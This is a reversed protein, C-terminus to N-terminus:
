RGKPIEGQFAILKKVTHVIMELGFLILGIWVFMHPIWMPTATAEISLIHLQVSKMFFDWAFRFYIGILALFVLGNVVELGDGARKGLRKVVLDVNIHAGRRMAYALGLFVVVVMLYASYEEIGLLPKNLLYRMIVNTSIMIMMIVISVAGMGIGVYGLYAVFSDVFRGVKKM